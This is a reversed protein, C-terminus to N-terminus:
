KGGEETLYYDTHIYECGNNDKYGYKVVKIVELNHLAKVDEIRNVYSSPYYYAGGNKDYYSYVFEVTNM